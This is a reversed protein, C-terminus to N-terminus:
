RTEGLFPRARGIKRKLFEWRLGLNGADLLFRKSQAAAEPALRQLTGAAAARLQVDAAWELVTM